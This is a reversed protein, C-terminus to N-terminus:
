ATNAIRQLTEFSAQPDESKQIYGGVNLIEVGAKILAETNEASVGGDWAIEADSNIKKVEAIKHLLSMDAEGGFHGFNGSFILIQDAQKVLEAASKVSTKQLLAIGAKIHVAQLSKMMGLIDGEAEAHIIVMHPKLSILTELEETPNKYMIHIDAVVNTDWYLQIPKILNAPALTNNALDFHIRQAFPQVRNLQERFVHPNEATITPCITTM